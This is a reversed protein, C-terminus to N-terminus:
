FLAAGPGGFKGLALKALLYMGSGNPGLMLTFFMCPAVILKSIGVIEADRAIAWGVFLDFALYHQWAAAIQHDAAGHFFNVIGPLTLDQKALVYSSGLLGPVGPPAPAFVFSIAQWMYLVALVAQMLLMAVRTAKARPFLCAIIWCPLLPKSALKFAGHVLAPDYSNMIYHLVM